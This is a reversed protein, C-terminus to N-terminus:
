KETQQLKLSPVISMVPIDSNSIIDHAASHASIPVIKLEKEQQTMIMILDARVKNAYDIIAQALTQGEAARIMESTCSVESKILFVAQEMQMTLRKVESKDQGFLISIVRITAGYRKGLDVAYKVKEASEKTLDIPLVINKCGERMTKGKITVVPCKAGEVVKLANSGVVKEKSGKSGNTGMLIMRTKLGAAVELIKDAVPGKTVIINTKINNKKSVMTGLEELKAEAQSETANEDASEHAKKEDDMVYLLSLEANYFRALNYSQDLAILSQESFDIPILIQPVSLNMM